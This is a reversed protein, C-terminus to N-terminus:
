DLDNIADILERLRAYNGRKFTFKVRSLYGLREDPDAPDSDLQVMDKLPMIDTFDDRLWPLSSEALPHSLRISLSDGDFYYSHYRSYFQAIHHYADEADKSIYLLKM